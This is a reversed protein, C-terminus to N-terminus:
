YCFLTHSKISCILLCCKVKEETKTKRLYINQIFYKNERSKQKKLKQPSTIQVPWLTVMECGTDDDISHYKTVPVNNNFPM